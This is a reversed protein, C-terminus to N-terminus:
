KLRVGDKWENILDYLSKGYLEEIRNNDSYVSMLKEKGYCNYLYLLFSEAKYYSYMEKSLTDGLIYDSSDSQLLPIRREGNEFELIAQSEISTSINFEEDKGLKLIRENYIKVLEGVYEDPIDTFIKQYRKYRSTKYENDFLSSLLSALGEKFFLSTNKEIGSLNCLVHTVEHTSAEPGFKLVNLKVKISSPAWSYRNDNAALTIDLQENYNFNIFNKIFIIGEDMEETWKVIDEWNWNYQEYKYIAEPSNISFDKGYSYHVFITFNSRWIDKSFLNIMDQSKNIFSRYDYNALKIYDSLYNMKALFCIFSYSYDCLLDMDIDENFDRILWADGFPPLKQIRDSNFITILEESKKEQATIPFNYVKSWYNELGLCIWAPLTGGSAHYFVVGMSLPDDISIKFGLFDRGVENANDSIYIIPPNFEMSYEHKAIEFMTELRTIINVKDELVEDKLRYFANETNCITNYGLSKTYKDAELFVPKEVPLLLYRNTISFLVTLSLIFIIILLIYINKRDKVQMYLYGGKNYLMM